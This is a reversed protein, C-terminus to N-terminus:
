LVFSCGIVLTALLGTLFLVLVLSVPQQAAGRQEVRAKIEEILTRMMPDAGILIAGAGAAKELLQEGARDVFSVGCLDIVVHKGNGAREISQWAREAELVWEHALKGELLFRTERTWEFISVKLIVAEKHNAQALPVGKALGGFM